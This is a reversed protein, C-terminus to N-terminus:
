GQEYEEKRRMRTHLDEEEKTMIVEMTFYWLSHKLLTIKAHIILFM